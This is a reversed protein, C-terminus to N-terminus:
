KGAGAPIAPTQAVANMINNEADRMAQEAAQLADRVSNTNNQVISSETSAANNQTDLVPAVASAPIAPAQAVANMINNEADRMAQEAAQLPDQVSNTNNDQNEMNVNNEM